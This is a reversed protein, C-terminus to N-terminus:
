ALGGGRVLLRALLGAILSIIIWAIVQEPVFRATGSENM